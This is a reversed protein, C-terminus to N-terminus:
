EKKDIKNQREKQLEKTKETAVLSVYVSVPPRGVGLNSPLIISLFFCIKYQVSWLLWPLVFIEQVQVVLGAFWGLFSGNWKYEKLGL